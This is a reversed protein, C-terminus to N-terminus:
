AWPKGFHACWADSLPWQTTLYRYPIWCFGGEGWKSGWSNAVEFAGVDNFVVRADDCGIVHMEHGGVPTDLNTPTRILGTAAAEDSEMQEFVPIGITFSYGSQLVTKATDVDLIRHYAGIKYLAAEAIQEPTPINFIAADSYADESELCCGVQALCQFITRSDAGADTNFSGEKIREQAYQFLPSFRLTNVDFRKGLQSPQMRYLLEM